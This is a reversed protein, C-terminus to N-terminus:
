ESGGSRRGIAQDVWSRPIRKLKGLGGVIPITGEQVRRRVTSASIGLIQALEAVRYTLTGRDDHRRKRKM